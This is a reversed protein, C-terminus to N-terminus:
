FYMHTKSHGSVQSIKLTPTKAVFRLMWIQFPAHDCSPLANSIKPDSHSPSFFSSTGKGSGPLSDSFVFLAHYSECPCESPIQFLNTDGCNQNRDERRLLVLCFTPNYTKASVEQSPLVWMLDRYAQYACVVSRSTSLFWILFLIPRCALCLGGCTAGQNM